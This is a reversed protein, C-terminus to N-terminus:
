RTTAAVAPNTAPVSQPDGRALAVRPAFDIGHRPIGRREILDLSMWSVALSRLLKTRTSGVILAVTQPLRLDYVLGLCQNSVM